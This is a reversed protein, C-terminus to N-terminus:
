RRVIIKGQMKPHLSCFYDYTGPVTLIPPTFNFDDIGIENDALTISRRKTQRDMM